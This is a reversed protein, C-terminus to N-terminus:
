LIWKQHEECVWKQWRLVYVKGSWIEARRTTTSSPQSFPKICFTEDSFLAMGVGTLGHCGVVAVALAYEEKAWEYGSGEQSQTRWGGGELQGGCIWEAEREVGAGGDEEDFLRLDHLKDKLNDGETNCSPWRSDLNPNMVIAEMTM